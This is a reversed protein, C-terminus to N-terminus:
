FILFRQRLYLIDIELCLPFQKPFMEVILTIIYHIFRCFTFRKVSQLIILTSQFSALPCLCLNVTLFISNPLTDGVPLSFMSNHFLFQTICADSVHVMLFFYFFHKFLKLVYNHHLISFISQFSFVVFPFSDLFIFSLLLNTLAILFPFCVANMVDQSM